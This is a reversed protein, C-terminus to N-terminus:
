AAHCNFHDTAESFGPNKYPYQKEESAWAAASVTANPYGAALNEGYPGDKSHKFVCTQSHSTAYSALTTNRNLASANHLSRLDNHVSLM